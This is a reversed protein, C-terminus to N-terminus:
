LFLFILIESSYIFNLNTIMQFHFVFFNFYLNTICIHRVQNNYIFKKRYIIKSNKVRELLSFKYNNYYNIDKIIIILYDYLIAMFNLMNEKIFNFHM